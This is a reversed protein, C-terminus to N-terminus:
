SCLRAHSRNDYRFSRCLSIAQSMRPFVCTLPPSFTQPLLECTLDDLVFECQQCRRGPFRQRDPSVDVFNDPCRCSYHTPTHNSDLLLKAGSSALSVARAFRLAIVTTFVSTWVHIRAQLSNAQVFASVLGIPSIQGIQQASAAVLLLPVLLKNCM